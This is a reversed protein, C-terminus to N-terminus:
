RVASVLQVAIPPLIDDAGPRDELTIDEPVYLNGTKVVALRWRHDHRM